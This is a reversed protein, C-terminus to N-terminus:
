RRRGDLLKYAEAFAAANKADWVAMATMLEKLRAEETHTRAVKSLSQMEELAAGYEDMTTISLPDM